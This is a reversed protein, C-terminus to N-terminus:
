LSKSVILTTWIFLTLKHIMLTGSWLCQQLKSTISNLISSFMLSRAGHPRKGSNFSWQLAGPPLKTVQRSMSMKGNFCLKKLLSHIRTFVVSLKLCQFSQPANTHCDFQLQRWKEPRKHELHFFFFFPSHTLIFIFLLTIKRKLKQHCLWNIYNSYKQISDM